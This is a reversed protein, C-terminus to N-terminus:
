GSKNAVQLSVISRDKPPEVSVVKEQDIDDRSQLLGIRLGKITKISQLQALLIKLVCNM